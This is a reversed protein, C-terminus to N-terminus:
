CSFLETIILDAKIDHKEPYVTDVVLKSSICVIKKVRSITSLFRDYYGKGYGLRYKNKDCALAPVIILDVESVECPKCTPELTHFCSECLEDGNKYECCELIQGNVRPLYFRKSTDSLLSLLNVEDELPYFLMINKANKYVETQILKEALVSSLAVMDLEKRTEKAWKRLTQKDM